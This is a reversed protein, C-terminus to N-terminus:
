WAPLEQDLQWHIPWLPPDGDPPLNLTYVREAVDGAALGCTTQGRSTGFEFIRKAHRLRAIACVYIMDTRNPHHSEEHIVAVPVCVAGINPFIEAAYFERVNSQAQAENLLM